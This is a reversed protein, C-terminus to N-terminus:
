RSASDTTRTSLEQMNIMTEFNKVGTNQRRDILLKSQKESQKQRKIQNTFKQQFELM